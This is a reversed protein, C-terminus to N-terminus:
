AERKRAAELAEFIVDRVPVAHAEAAQVCVDFEPKLQPPGYPGESVKIPIKGFRTEVEVIRRPREIRDFALRRIGITSTERMLVEALRDESGSEAIV